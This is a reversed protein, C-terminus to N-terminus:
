LDRNVFEYTDSVLELSDPQDESQKEAHRDAASVDSCVPQKKNEKM